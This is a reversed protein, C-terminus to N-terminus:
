FARKRSKAIHCRQWYCFSGLLPEKPGLYPLMVVAALPTCARQGLYSVPSLRKFVRVGICGVLGLGVEEKFVLRDM